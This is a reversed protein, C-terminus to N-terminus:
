YQYIQLLPAVVTVLMMQAHERPRIKMDDSIGTHKLWHVTANQMFEAMTM